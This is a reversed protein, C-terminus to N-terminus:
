NVWYCALTGRWGAIPPLANPGYWWNDVTAMIYTQNQLQITYPGGSGTFTCGGVAAATNASKIANSLTCDTASTQALSTVTIGSQALAPLSLLVLSGLLVVSASIKRENISTM